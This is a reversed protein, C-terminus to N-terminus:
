DLAKLLKNLLGAKEPKKEISYANIMEKILRRITHKNSCPLFYEPKEELKIQKLFRKIDKNTFISGKNIMAIYFLVEDIAYAEAEKTEITDDMYALVFHHHLDVGFIPIDMSQAISIYLIGLATASGKQSDLLDNLFYDNLKVQIPLKGRFKYVDYFIHNLVKVKELATLNPNIELWINQRLRNVKETYKEIDLEPYRFQTLLLFAKILDNSHFQSWNELEFYLDTFRIDDILNEIREVNEEDVATMWAEELFPIADKGYTSIKERISSYMEENPEDILSILANLLKNERL